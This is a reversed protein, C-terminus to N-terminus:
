KGRVAELLLEGIDTNDLGAADLGADVGDATEAVTVGFRDHHDIVRVGTEGRDEVRLHVGALGAHQGLEKQFSVHFKQVGYLNSQLPVM